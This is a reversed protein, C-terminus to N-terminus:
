IFTMKVNESWFQETLGYGNTGASLVYKLKLLFCNEERGTLIRSNKSVVWIGKEKFSVLGNGRM